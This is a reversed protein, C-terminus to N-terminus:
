WNIKVNLSFMKKLEILLVDLENMWILIQDRSKEEDKEIKFMPTTM